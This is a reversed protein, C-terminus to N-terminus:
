SIWKENNITTEKQNNKTKDLTAKNNNANM